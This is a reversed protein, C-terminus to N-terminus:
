IIYLGNNQSEGKQISTIIKTGMLRSSLWLADLCLIRLFFVNAKFFEVIKKIEHKFRLMAFKKKIIM